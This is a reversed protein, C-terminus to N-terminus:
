VPIKEKAVKEILKDDMMKPDIGVTKTIVHKVLTVAEDYMKKREAMKEAEIRELATKMMGAEKKAADDLIKQTQEEARLEASKMMKMAEEEAEKMKNKKLESIEHLRKEAEESKAIGEEIKTRRKALFELLPKYITLRLVVLVIFFNVAQALFLKWDLGLNKILDQM